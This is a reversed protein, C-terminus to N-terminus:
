KCEPSPHLITPGHTHCYVNKYSLTVCNETKKRDMIKRNTEPLTTLATALKEKTKTIEETLRSVTKMLMVMSERDAITTNAPNAVADINNQQVEANNGQFGATQATQM